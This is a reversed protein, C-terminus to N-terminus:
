FEEGNGVDVVDLGFGQWMRIVSPRDDIVTDIDLHSLYKTYIDKKVLTDQRRDNEERMILCEYQIDINDSLWKETVGRYDEPRASVFIIKQGSEMAEDLMALVDLRVTDKDMNDFFGKWDKNEGQVFHRRHEIDCLTGDLDCVVIKEGKLYNLRQLAMKIIVHNGVKNKRFTDRFICTNVDISTYDHHEIKAEHAKALDVWRQVVNPNLNTDDIIVNKGKSLFNSALSLEAEVTMSENTHNFIDFHLMQRILDKNLRVTNGSERLIREAETSKGSAPLGKMIILKAM